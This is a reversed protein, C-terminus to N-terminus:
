QSPLERPVAEPPLDLKDLEERMASALAPPLNPMALGKQLEARGLAPKDLYHIYLIALSYRASPNEERALLKELIEAAQAHEGKNHHALSLLYLLRPSPNDPNLAIAKQAFNEAAQWQGATLLSEVLAQLVNVDNPNQAAQTMLKGIADMEGSAMQPMPSVQGGARRSLGPSTVRQFASTALIALFGLGLVCLLFKHLNSNAITM